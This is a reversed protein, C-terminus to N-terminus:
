GRGAPSRAAHPRQAVEGGAAARRHLNRAFAMWLQRLARVHRPLLGM